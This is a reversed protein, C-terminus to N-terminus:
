IKEGGSLQILDSIETLAFSRKQYVNLNDKFSRLEVYNKNTKNLRLNFHLIQM